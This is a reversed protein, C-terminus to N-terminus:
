EYSVCLEKDSKCVFSNNELVFELYEDNSIYIVYRNSSTKIWKGLEKKDKSTSLLPSDIINKFLLSGEQNISEEDLYINEDKNLLTNSSILKSIGNRILAIESKIKTKNAFKSSDDFKSLVFVSLISIVVLVLILEILSFAKRM